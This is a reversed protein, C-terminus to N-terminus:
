EIPIVFQDFAIEYGSEAYLTERKLHTTLTLIWESHDNPIPYDLKIVNQGKNLSFSGSYKPIGDKLLEWRYNFESVDTFLYTNIVKFTRKKFDEPFFRISQYSKKVEHIKASLSRNAYIIGNGCFNGDNPMDGYDGGYTLISGYEETDKLLAQDIWDWIFGGQLKPYKDFLETYEFFNGLSNGMAHSYECLIFPKGENLRGYDEVADPYHYMVSRIDTCEDYKLWHVSGEYHIIRRPDISKILHYMKIFNDGSFSENGLSWILISPHNKDREVM